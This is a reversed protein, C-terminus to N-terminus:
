PRTAPVESPPGRENEESEDEDEPENEEEEMEESEQEKADDSNRVSEAEAGGRSEALAADISKRADEPVKEKVEELVTVHVSRAKAVLEEVKAPDKGVQQAISSIEQGFREYERYQETAEIAAEEDGAEAAMRAREARNQAAQMAVEAAREPDEAALARLSEVNGEISREKAAIIAPRAQEPVRDKISDLVDLHRLTSVAVRESAIRKREPESISALAANSNEIEKEYDSALDQVFEPKGMEAMARAEALRLEALELARAAKAEQDFTFATGIGEFFRKLGYFPSDPLTGPEPLQGQADALPLVLLLLAIAPFARKMGWRNM